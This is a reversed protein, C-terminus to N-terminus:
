CKKVELVKISYPELTIEIKENGCLDVANWANKFKKYGDFVINTNIENDTSNALFLLDNRNETSKFLSLEIDKNSSRYERRIKLMNLIEVIDIPNNIYYIKGNRLINEGIKINNFYDTYQMDTNLYPIGPGMIVIGGNKVYEIIKKQASEDMFDYSSLILLEYKKIEENNLHTDSIDYNYNNRDLIRGINDLWNNESPHLDSKDLYKFDFNVNSKFLEQPLNIGGIIDAFQNLNYSNQMAIFRGYDYDRMLLIRRVKQYKYLKYNNLFNNLRKYFTFYQTRIRNDMTVPSGQWRDREVIMYFNIAKIGHMFVSLTTFEEESPLFTKQFYFWVGSGFEPIFPLKSSGCLYKVLKKYDHYEEKNPYRDIGYIDIYGSSESSTLDIPTWYQYAANHYFPITISWMNAIKNLSYQIKYEKYKIWDFYYPLEKKEQAKFEIPPYIEKFDSYKTHYKKNLRSIELYNQKLFNQYLEISDKSYDLSYANDKFFYCTENDIQLGIICGNPYMHEKIIPALNDFYLAVENYFKKSAYSPIPFHKPDRVMMCLTGHPTKAQIDPDMLIRKPYGFYTMEANIHPGPRVLVKLNHKECIKLFENIDKNKDINGFDFQGKKIEHISWPIYTEVIKFGM